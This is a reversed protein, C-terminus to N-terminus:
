GRWSDGHFGTVHFQEGDVTVTGPIAASAGFYRIIDPVGCPVRRVLYKGNNNDVSTLILHRMKLARPKNTPTGSPLPGGAVVGADLYATRISCNFSAGGDTIYGFASHQLGDDYAAIPNPM